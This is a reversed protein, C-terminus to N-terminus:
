LSFAIAFIESAGARLEVARQVTRALLDYDHWVKKLTPMASGIRVKTEGTLQLTELMVYGPMAGLDALGATAAEIRSKWLLLLRDIQEPTM